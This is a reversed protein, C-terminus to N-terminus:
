LSRYRGRSYDRFVRPLVLLGLGLVGFAASAIITYTSLQVARTNTPDGYGSTAASGVVLAIIVVFLGVLQLTSFDEVLWIFPNGM